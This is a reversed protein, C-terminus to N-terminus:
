RIILLKNLKIPKNLKITKITKKLEQIENLIFTILTGQESKSCYASGAVWENLIQEKTKEMKDFIFSSPFYNEVM